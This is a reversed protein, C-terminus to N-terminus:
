CVLYPSTKLGKEMSQWSATIQAADTKSLVDWQM